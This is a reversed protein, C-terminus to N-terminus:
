EKYLIEDNDLLVFNLKMGSLDWLIQQIKATKPM